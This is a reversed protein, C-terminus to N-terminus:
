FRSYGGVGQICQAESMEELYATCSVVCWRLGSWAAPVISGNEMEKLRPKAKGPKVTRELHRRDLPWDDM